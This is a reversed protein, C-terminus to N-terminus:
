GCVAHCLTRINMKDFLALSQSGIEARIMRNWLEKMHPYVAIYASKLAEQSARINTSM